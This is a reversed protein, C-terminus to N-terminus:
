EHAPESANIGLVENDQPDLAIQNEKALQQLYERKEAKYQLIMANFAEKNGTIEITQKKDNEDKISISYVGSPNQAELFSNIGRIDKITANIEKLAAEQKQLDIIYAM